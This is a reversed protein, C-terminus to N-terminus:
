CRAASENPTPGRSAAQLPTRVTAGPVRIPTRPTDVTSRSTRLAIGPPPLLVSAVVAVALMISLKRMSIVGRGNRRVRGHEASSPRDSRASRRRLDDTRAGGQRVFRDAPQVGDAHHPGRYVSRGEASSSSRRRARGSSVVMERASLYGNAPDNIHALHEDRTDWKMAKAPCTYVCSPEHAMEPMWATGAMNNKNNPLASVTSPVACSGCLSTPMPDQAVGACRASGRRATAFLDSDTVSRPTAPVTATWPQVARRVQRRSREHRGASVLGPRDVGCRQGAQHAGQVPLAQRLASRPLALLQIEHVSRQRRAEAVQDHHSNRSHGEQPGVGREAKMQWTRKCSIVCGNCRVCQDLDQFIAMTTM